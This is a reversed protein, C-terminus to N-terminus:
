CQWIGENERYVGDDPCRRCGADDPEAQTPLREREFGPLGSEDPRGILGHADGIRNGGRWDLCELVAPEIEQDFNFLGRTSPPMLEVVHSRAHRHSDLSRESREHEGRIWDLSMEEEDGAPRADRRNARHDSLRQEPALLSAHPEEVTRFRCVVEGVQRFQSRQRLGSNPSSCLFAM